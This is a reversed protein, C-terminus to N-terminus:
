NEWGHQEYLSNTKYPTPAELIANPEVHNFYEGLNGVNNNQMMYQSPVFKDVEVGVGNVTRSWAGGTQEPTSYSSENSFTPHWPLKGTDTYHGRADQANALGYDYDQGISNFLKAQLENTSENNYKNQIGNIGINYQNANVNIDGLGNM